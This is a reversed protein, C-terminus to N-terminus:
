SCHRKWWNLLWLDALAYNEASKCLGQQDVDYYLSFHLRPGTTQLAQQGSPDITYTMDLPTDKKRKSYEVEVKKILVHRSREGGIALDAETPYSTLFNASLISAWHKGGEQTDLDSVLRLPYTEFLRIFSAGVKRSETLRIKLQYQGGKSRLIQAYGGGQNVVWRAGGTSDTSQQAPQAPQEPATLYGDDASVNLSFSLTCAFLVWKFCNKILM